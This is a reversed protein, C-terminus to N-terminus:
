KVCFNKTSLNTYHRAVTLEDVNPFSLSKKRRLKLPVQECISYSDDKSVNDFITVAKTM